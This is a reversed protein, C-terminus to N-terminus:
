AQEETPTDGGSEAAKLDSTRQVFAMRIQQLAENLTPEADDLRGQLGEVLIGLADVALRAETMNPEDATLHIAALEYIGLAHNAVVASVPAELLQARAEAMEHAMQRAQDEQDPTLQPEAVTEPEPTTNVPREGGPTWLSSM